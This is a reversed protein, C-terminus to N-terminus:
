LPPLEHDEPSGATADGERLGESLPGRDILSLMAKAEPDKDLISSECEEDEAQEKPEPGVGWVEIVDVQFDATKSLQPSGYTTCRPGAKSHGVSFSQDIWLGFYDLQGGMGLGNPMTKVGHNLYMYHENYGTGNYVSFQPSLSFLFCSATGVFQPRINWSVSAFGGFVHGAKDRVVIVTPGQKLIRTQLQSFSDGYQHNSYLPRWNGRLEGPLSYSLLILAPVDLITQAKTWNVNSVTPIMPTLFRESYEESQSIRFCSHFVLDLIHSFLPCSSLWAELEWETFSREPPNGSAEQTSPGKEFLDTLLYLSLSKAWKEPSSFKWSKFQESKQNIKVYSKILLAVFESMRPSSVERTTSALSVLITSKDTLSGKFLSSLFAALGNVTFGEQKTKSLKVCCVFIRQIIDEPLLSSLYRQLNNLQCLQSKGSIKDFLTQIEINEEPNFLNGAVTDGRIKSGESGM